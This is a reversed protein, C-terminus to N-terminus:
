ALLIVLPGNGIWGRIFFKNKADLCIRRRTSPNHNAGDLPDIEPIHIHDKYNESRGTLTIAPM